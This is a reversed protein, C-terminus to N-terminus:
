ALQAIGHVHKHGACTNNKSTKYETECRCLRQHFVKAVCVTSLGDSM